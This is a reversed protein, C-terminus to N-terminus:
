YKGWIYYSLAVLKLQLTSWKLLLFLSINVKKEVLRSFVGGSISKRDDIKGEYDVETYSFLTFNKCWPCWLGYSMTARLNRSIIKALLLHSQRLFSQYRSVVSVVQMIEVRSSTLYLLSGITPVYKKQDVKASVDYKKLKCPPVMPSGVLSSEEMGFKKMMEKLYKCWFIFIV